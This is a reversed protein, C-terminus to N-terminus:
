MFSVHYNMISRHHCKSMVFIENRTEQVSKSATVKDFSSIKIAVPRMNYKSTKDFVHGKWVLGFM